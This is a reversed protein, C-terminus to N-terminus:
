AVAPISVSTESVWAEVSTISEVSLNKKRVVVVLVGILIVFYEILVSGKAM